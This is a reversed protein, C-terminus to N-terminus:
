QLLCSTRGQALESLAAKGYMHSVQVELSFSPLLCGSVHEVSIGPAWRGGRMPLLHLVPADAYPM